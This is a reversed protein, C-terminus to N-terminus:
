LLGFTPISAWSCSERNWMWIKVSDRLNPDTYTNKPNNIYAWVVLPKGLHIPYEFNGDTDFTTANYVQIAGNDCQWWKLQTDTGNPWQTTCAASACSVFVALLLYKM